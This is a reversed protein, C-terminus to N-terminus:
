RKSTTASSGATTGPSVPAKTAPVTPPPAVPAPGLPNLEVGCNTKAYVSVAQSAAAIRDLENRKARWVKEVRQREADAADIAVPTPAGGAPAEIANVLARVTDLIIAVDPEIETPSSSRLQELTGLDNRLAAGDFSALHTGVAGVDTLNGCFANTSREPTRGCGQLGIYGLIVAVAISALVAVRRATTGPPKGVPADREVPHEGIPRFLPFPRSV